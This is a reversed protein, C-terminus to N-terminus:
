SDCNWRSDLLATNLIQIGSRGSEEAWEKSDAFKWHGDVLIWRRMLVDMGSGWNDM